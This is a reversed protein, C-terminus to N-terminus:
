NMRHLRKLSAPIDSSAWAQDDSVQEFHLHTGNHITLRTFGYDSSRFASWPGPAGFHDVRERCGASGTIIHVPARPNVYPEAESGKYIGLNYTPFLREYSHEHAWIAVDVGYDWLLRELGFWGLFGVRVLSTYHHCDDRNYDSCYMPRHGLLIIWPREKRNEPETAVMLDEELWKYQRILQHWGYNTYFYVETSVCIFHAPGMNFSYFLNKSDSPMSFREKYHSFNYAYEHNGVATMYPIYAAIPEILRMFKDGVRGNDWDMDYAFDGVHIIADYMGAQVEEQLRPLSQANEAGLDGYIAFRPSWNTGNLPVKMVFLSSWGEKSGVHYLYSGGPLLNKLSVRHIYQQRKEQGSDVFLTSYGTAKMTLFSPKDEYDVILSHPGYEVMPTSVNEFTSWTVVISNEEASPYIPSVCSQFYQRVFMIFLVM